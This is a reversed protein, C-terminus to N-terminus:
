EDGVADTSGGEEKPQPREIEGFVQEYKTMNENIARILDFVVTPPIKVRAVVSSPIVLRDDRMEPPQTQAFDITFEYPTHWVSAVNAYAGREWDPPVRLELQPQDSMGRSHWFGAGRLL